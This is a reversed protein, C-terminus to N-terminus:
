GTVKIATDNWERWRALLRGLAARSEAIEADGSKYTGILICGITDASTNGAHLRIGTFGPVDQVEPLLAQLRESYSLVLGYVGEPIPGKGEGPPDELTVAIIEQGLKLQGFTARATRETRQVTLM